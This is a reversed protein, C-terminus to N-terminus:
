VIEGIVSYPEKISGLYSKLDDVNDKDVILIMGIGM